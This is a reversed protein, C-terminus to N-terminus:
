CWAEKLEETLRQVVDSVVESLLHREVKSPQPKIPSRPIAAVGADTQGGRREGVNGVTGVQPTAKLSREWLPFIDKCRAGNASLSPFIYESLKACAGSVGRRPFRDDAGQSTSLQHNM